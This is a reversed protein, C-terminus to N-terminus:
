AGGDRRLDDLRRVLHRRDPPRPRADVVDVADGGGLLADDDHVRGAAVGDGGSLVRAGEDGRESAVNRLAVRRHLRALPVPLLVHADLEGALREAHEAEAADAALHDRAHLRVPHVNDPVVGEERGVGRALEVDLRDGGGVAHRAGVEEGDVHRQEVVCLVHDVLRRDRRHLRTHADDVASAAADDVLRVQEGRQLRAVDGAGRNVHELRLRRRLVLPRQNLVGLKDRRRVEAGRRELRLALDGLLDCVREDGGKGLLRDDADDVRGVQGERLLRLQLRPRRKCRGEALQERLDVLRRDGRQLHLHRALHLLRALQARGRRQDAKEVLGARAVLRARRDVQDRRRGERGLPLHLHRRLLHLAADERRQELQRDGRGLAAVDDGARHEARALAHDLELAVLELELWLAVHEDVLRDVLGAHERADRAQEPLVLDVDLRAHDRVAVGLAGDDVHHGDVALDLGGDEGLGGLQRVHRLDVAKVDASRPRSPPTARRRPPPPPLGALQRHLGPM